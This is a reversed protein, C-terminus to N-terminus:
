VARIDTTEIKTLTALARRFEDDLVDLTVEAAQRSFFGSTDYNVAQKAAKASVAERLIEKVGNPVSAYDTIWDRRTESIVVGEAENILRDIWAGSAALDANIGVGAKDLVNQETCLTITM